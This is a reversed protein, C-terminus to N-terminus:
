GGVEHGPMPDGDDRHPEGHVALGFRFAGAGEVLEDGVILDRRRRWGGPLEFGRDFVRQAAVVADHDEGDGPRHARRVLRREDRGLGDASRDPDDVGGGGASGFREHDEGGRLGRLAAGVEVTDHAGGRVDDLPDTEDGRQGGEVMQHAASPDGTEGSPRPLAEPDIGQELESTPVDTPEAGRQAM